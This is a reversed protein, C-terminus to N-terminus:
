AFDWGSIKGAEDIAASVEILGAPRFYAWTFEEERTWRLHVPKGASKALRAAEIAAEGTHKGGFGGGTDPVIVRVRARPLRFTECLQGHVRSPQQTGTWVTLNGDAWEAVAARPELPAHQVYAITFAASVKQQADEFAKAVDGWTKPRSRGGRSERGTQKLYAFLEDSSVQTNTSQWRANAALLDCAQTAAWSTPAVCGVFDGDRVVMVHENTEVPKTDLSILKASYKSPRLIKGYLMGPRVIDSPYRHAGTVIARGDVKPTDTGLIKWEDVAAVQVGSPPAAQLRERVSKLKVLDTLSIAQNNSGHFFM